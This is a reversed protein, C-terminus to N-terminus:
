NIDLFILDQHVTLDFCMQAIFESL